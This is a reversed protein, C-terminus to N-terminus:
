PLVAVPYVPECVKVNEPELLEGLPVTGVTAPLLVANVVPTLRVNLPPTALESLM